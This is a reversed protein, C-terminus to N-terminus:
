KEAICYLYEDGHLFIRNGDFYMGANFVEYRGASGPLATLNQLINNGVVTGEAGPKLVTMYGVEDLLYINKGALTPSACYGYHMRDSFNYGDMWRQYVRKKERTDVVALYGATGVQYVLGDVYLPSAVYFFIMNHVWSGYLAAKDLKWLLTPKDGAKKPIAIAQFEAGPHTCSNFLVGEEVIPLYAGFPAYGGAALVTGDLNVLNNATQVARKGDFQALVPTGKIGHPDPTGPTRWLEKGTAADYAILAEETGVLLKGECLLPSRHSGHEGAGKAQFELNSWILKGNLDFASTLYGGYGQVVWYVRQGDSAPTANGSSVENHYLKGKNGTALSDHVSKLFNQRENLNKDIMAQKSADLGQSTVNANLLSVLELNDKELKTLLPEAKDKVASREEATMADWATGTHMWLIKGSRKDICFLDTNSSGVFLKDGVVIPQSMSRGTLKLMWAINKTEYGGSYSKRSGVPRIYAAFRWKTIGLVGSPTSWQNSWPLQAKDCIAKILIRNWGENLHVKMDAGAVNTVRRPTGNVWMKVAPLAHFLDMEVDAEHPAYLYTHAYAARQDFNTYAAAGSPEKPPNLTGLAYVLDVWLHTGTPENFNYFSQSGEYARHVKWQTTGAGAKAGADPQVEAEGGLFDNDIDKEPDAAPFPGAVLWDKVTFYALAHSDAGPKGQPKLAQVMIESTVDKLRRSWVTPPTAGPFRGTGDGRWGVPREPSPYFDASGLPPKDSGRSQGEEAVIAGGSQGVIIAALILRAAMKRGRLFLM